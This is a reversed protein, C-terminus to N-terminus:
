KRPLKLGANKLDEIIKENLVMMSDYFGHAEVWVNVTLTYQDIDLQSVGIRYGAFTKAPLLHYFPNNLEVAGFFNQYYAVRNADKIDAPYFTGRWHKYHWGSTGIHIKGKKMFSTKYLM